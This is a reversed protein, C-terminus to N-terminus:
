DITLWDFLVRDSELDVSHIAFALSALDSSFLYPKTRCSQVRDLDTFCTKPGAGELRHSIGGHEQASRWKQRGDLCAM